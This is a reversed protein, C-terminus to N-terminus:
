LIMKIVCKKPTLGQVLTRLLLRLSIIDTLFFGDQDPDAVASDIDIKANPYQPHSVEAM